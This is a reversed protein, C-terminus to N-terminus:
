EPEEHQSGHVRFPLTQASVWARPFSGQAPVAELRVVVTDSQGSFGSAALDWVFLHTNAVEV